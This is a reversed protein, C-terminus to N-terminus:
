ASWRGDAAAGTTISALSEARAELETWRLFRDGLGPSLRRRVRLTRSGGVRASEDVGGEMTYVDFYPAAAHYEGRALVSAVIGAHVFSEKQPAYQLFIDGDEPADHLIGHELGFIALDAATLMWPLPWCSRRSRCDYHSWYGCQQILAIDHSCRGPESAAGTGLSPHPQADHLMPADPPTLRVVASTTAVLLQPSLRFM